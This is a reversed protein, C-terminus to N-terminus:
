RRSTAQLVPRSFLLVLVVVAPALLLWGIDPRAFAGQFSGLALALQMLQWYLAGGRAWRRGRLLGVTVAFLWAAAIVALILMAIATAYSLPVDVFLEVLVFMAGAALALAELLVIVAIVTVLPHRPAPADADRGAESEVGSEDGDDAFIDSM